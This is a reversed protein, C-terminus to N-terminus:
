NECSIAIFVMNNYIKEYIINGKCNDETCHKKNAEFRDYKDMSTQLESIKEDKFNFFLSPFTITAFQKRCATNSCKRIENLSFINLYKLIEVVNCDCNIRKM